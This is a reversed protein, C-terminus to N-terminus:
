SKNKEIREQSNSRTGYIFTGLLTALGSFSFIAGIATGKDLLIMLIGGTIIILGLIFAFIVGLHADKANSSVVLKELEIRHKQQTETMVIIRDAAGPVVDDYGRLIEPPPMPGKYHMRTTQMQLQLIAKEKEEKPLSELDEIFETLEQQVEDPLTESLSKELSQPSPQVDKTKTM